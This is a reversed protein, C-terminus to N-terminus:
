GILLRQLKQYGDKRDVIGDMKTDLKNMMGEVNENLDNMYVVFLVM